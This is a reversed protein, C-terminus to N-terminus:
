ETLSCKIIEAEQYLEDSQQPYIKEYKDLITLNPLPFKYKQQLYKYAARTGIYKLRLSKDLDRRHWVENTIITDGTTARIVNDGRVRKFMEWFPPIPRDKALNNIDDNKRKIEKRLEQNEAELLLNQYEITQCKQKHHSMCDIDDPLIFEDVPEPPETPEEKKVPPMEDTRNEEPAETSKPAPPRLCPRALSHLDPSLDHLMFHASCILPNLIQAGCFEKWALKVSRTANKHPVYLEIGDDESTNTCGSVMCRKLTTM